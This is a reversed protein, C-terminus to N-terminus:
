KTKEISYFEYRDVSKQKFTYTYVPIKSSYKAVIEDVNIVNDKLDVTRILKSKDKSTYLNAQTVPQGAGPTVYEVYFVKKQIKITESELTTKITKEVFKPSYTNYTIPFTYTYNDSPKDYVINYVNGASISSASYPIKKGFLDEFRTKVIGAPIIQATNTGALDEYIAAFLAASKDYNSTTIERKSYLYGFYISNPDNYAKNLTSITNYIHTFANLNIEEDGIQTITDDDKKNIVFKDLAIFGGLGLIIIILIVITVVFKKNEM